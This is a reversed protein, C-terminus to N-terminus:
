AGLSARAERTAALINELSAVTEAYGRTKLGCDPNIWLQREPIAELAIGILERVEETSPVRPSHIDYVGPGIGRGFGSRELEPVVEMRSRAAEISTVDADLADIADLV